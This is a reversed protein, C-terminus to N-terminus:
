FVGRAPSNPKFVVGKGSLFRVHGKGCQQASVVGKGSLFQSFCVRSPQVDGTCLTYGSGGGGPLSISLCHDPVHFSWRSKVLHSLLPTTPLRM